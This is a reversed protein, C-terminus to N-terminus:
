PQQNQRSGRGFAPCATRQCHNNLLSSSESKRRWQSSSPRVCINHRTRIEYCCVNKQQSSNEVLASNGRNGLLYDENASGWADPNRHILLVGHKAFKPRD